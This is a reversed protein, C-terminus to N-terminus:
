TSGPDPLRRVVALLQEVSIVNAGRRAVEARVRGDNTAVTVPRSSELGGVLSIIREDAEVDSPSFEVTMRRRAVNPLQLRGGDEVGDFFLRVTIDFRAVLEALAHVL